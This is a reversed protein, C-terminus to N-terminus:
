PEIDHIDAPHRPNAQTPENVTVTTEGPVELPLLQMIYDTIHRSARLEATVSGDSHTSLLSIVKAQIDHRNRSM